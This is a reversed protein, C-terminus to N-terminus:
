DLKVSEAAARTEALRDRVTNPQHKVMDVADAVDKARTERAKRAKTETDLRPAELPVLNRPTAKGRYAKGAVLREVKRPKATSGAAGKVHGPKMGPIFIMAM